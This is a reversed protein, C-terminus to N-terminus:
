IAVDDVFSGIHRGQHTQDGNLHQYVPWKGDKFYGRDTKLIEMRANAVLIIRTYFFWSVFRDSELFVYNEVILQQRKAKVFFVKPKQRLDKKNHM